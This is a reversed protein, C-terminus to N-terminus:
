KYFFEAVSYTLIQGMFGYIDFLIIYCLAETGCDQILLVVASIHQYLHAVRPDSVPLILDIIVPDHCCINIEGNENLNIVFFYVRIM